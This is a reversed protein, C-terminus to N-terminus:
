KTLANEISKLYAKSTVTAGSTVDIDTDQNKIVNSILANTVDASEFLVTKVVDIKTIKGDKVTVNVENTWRGGDYKGNYVGDKLQTVDVHGITMNKGAELGNTAYISGGAIILILLVVISLIIKKLKRM